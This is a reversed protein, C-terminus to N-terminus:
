RPCTKIFRCWALSQQFSCRRDSKTTFTQSIGAFTGRIKAAANRKRFFSRRVSRALGHPIGFWVPMNLSSLLVANKAYLYDYETYDRQENPTEFHAHQIVVKPDYWIHLGNIWIRFSLEPEEYGYVFVERFGGLGLVTPVHFLSAGGQFSRSVGETVEVPTSYRQTPIDLYQFTTIARKPDTQRLHRALGSADLPYSDDDLLFAFEKGCAKMLINRGKAQGVRTEGRILQHNPRTKLVNRIADRDTSCDDYVFLPVSGLGAENLRELTSALIGPRNRTPILLALNDLSNSM